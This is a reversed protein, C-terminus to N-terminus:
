KSTRELGEKAETLKADMKLAKAFLEKAVTKNGKKETIQALRMTAGAHSPENQKPTYQLYKKLCEEGRELKLGSVASTRGIVYMAVMDDPNKKLADESLAFSKDYMKQNLYFNGLRARTEPDAKVMELYEREAEPIKKEHVYITGMQAHGRAANMKVIQRATEEAKDVGGGLFGPAQLYYQVLSERPDIYDPRLTVAREWESRMKPALSSKKLMNANQAIQGYTNGLWNHYEAVKDNTDVCEEFFEEADDYNKEDFSIRGLYYQAEAYDKDGSQFGTLIKKAEAPKREDYLKRADSITTQAFLHQSLLLLIIINKVSHIPNEYFVPTLPPNNCSVHLHNRFRTEAKSEAAFRLAHSAGIM